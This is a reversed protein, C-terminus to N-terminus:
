VHDFTRGTTGNVWDMVERERIDDHTQTNAYGIFQEMKEASRCILTLCDYKKGQDNKGMHYDSQRCGDIAQKIQQPTYGDNLRARIKDMRGRTPKSTNDKGMVNLWYNFVDQSCDPAAPSSISKVNTKPKHNKTRPEQNKTLPKHNNTLPKHNPPADNVCRARVTSKEKRKTEREIAIRKNNASNAHYKALEEKIRPQIYEGNESLVFFKSLVFDIAEVEEKSSAWVWDIAEDRTPFKERDYCSDILLNYVGHQLISLRAAKKAYDGINRKYYHM